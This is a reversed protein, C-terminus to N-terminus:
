RDVLPDAFMDPHVVPRFSRWTRKLVRSASAPSKAYARFCFAKIVVPYFERYRWNKAVFKRFSFTEKYPAELWLLAYLQLESGPLKSRRLCDIKDREIKQKEIADHLAPVLHLNLIPKFEPSNCDTSAAICPEGLYYAPKHTFNKIIYLAHSAVSEINSYHPDSLCPRFAEVHHERKMILSYISCFCSSDNGVIEKLQDLRRDVFDSSNAPNDRVYRQTDVLGEPAGEAIWVVYNAYLFDLDPNAKIADLVRRVSGKTPADDDGVVWTFTGQALENVCKFFNPNGGINEPNRSYKLPFDSSLSCIFQRTDDTSANDSVILECEDAFDRIEEIWLPLTAKLWRARNFTPVCISLLLQSM